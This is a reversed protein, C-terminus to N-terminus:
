LQRFPFSRGGCRWHCACTATSCTKWGARTSKDAGAQTRLNQGPLGARKHWLVLRGTADFCLEFRNRDDFWVHLVFDKPRTYGEMTSTGPYGKLEPNGYDGPPGGLVIEVDAQSMGKRLKALDAPDLRNWSTLDRWPQFLILYGSVGVVALILVVGAVVQIIPDRKAASMTEELSSCSVVPTGGRYRLREDSRAANSLGWRRSPPMWRIERTLRGCNPLQQTTPVFGALPQEFRRAVPSNLCIGFILSLEPWRVGM